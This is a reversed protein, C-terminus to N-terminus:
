KARTNDSGHWTCPSVLRARDSRLTKKNPPPSPSRPTHPELDHAPPPPPTLGSVHKVHRSARSSNPSRDLRHATEEPTTREGSQVTSANLAISTHPSGCRTAHLRAFCRSRGVPRAAQQPACRSITRVVTCEGRYRQDLQHMRHTSVLAPAFLRQHCLTPARPARDFHLDQIIVNRIQSFTCVPGDVRAHGRPVRCPAVSMLCRDPEPYYGFLRPPSRPDRFESARQVRPSM